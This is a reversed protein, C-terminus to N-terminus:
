LKHSLNFYYFRCILGEIGRDEDMDARGRSARRSCCIRSREGRNGRSRIEMTTLSARM